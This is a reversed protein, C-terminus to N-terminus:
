PAKHKPKYPPAEPTIRAGTSGAAAGITIAKLWQDITAGDRGQSRWIENAAEELPIPLLKKSAYEGYSYKDKAGLNKARYSLPDNSFPLPRGVADSQSAVDLAVGAFPSLKGRAYEYARTAAEAGRTGQIKELKSREGWFDHAINQLFRVSSISPGILGVNHHAIKFSLWDGAKPNTFNIKDDSGTASLLAQNLALAGMYTGAITLKQRVDRVASHVAEPSENKRNLLVKADKIPDGYLFAWRSAELKPAFFATNMWNPLKSAKTIGTAKNLNDALLKAGEPTKLSEPMANWEQNFRFQRFLKMGDFGRNGMLGIDKFIKVAGANQYDDQYKFPDNALGARKATIFNPDRVLDQMMREHYAGKDTVGMLKFSRGLDKFHQATAKPLFYQNGSHTVTWVTGHGFTALNFFASPISRFFKEYGPYKSEAVWQKAANVLRRREAMKAYMENTLVRAGKPSALGNFVDEKTLGLDTALGARIENPDTKGKDLYGDKALHWLAKAEEPTWASGPKRAKVTSEAKAVTDKTPTGGADVSKLLKDKAAAAADTSGKVGQAIGTAETEQKPTMEKGTTERVARRLGSVTGTDIETEGQHAVFVKHGETSWPKIKAVFDREAKDAAKYEPSEIGHADEAANTAKALEELQARAAMVADASVKKTPDANFDEVAKDVDFGKKLLERGRAVAEEKNIGEGREADIGRAETVRHAIGTAASAPPEKPTKAPPPAPPPEIAGRLDSEAKGLEEDTHGPHLSQYRKIALSVAEAVSRGASLVARAIRLASVYAATHLDSSGRQSKPDMKSKGDGSYKKIEADLRSIASDLKGPKEGEATLEGRRVKGVANSIEAPNAEDLPKGNYTKIGAADLEARKEARSMQSVPKMGLDANNKAQEASRPAVEQVGAQGTNARPTEEGQVSPEVRQRESGAEGTGEPPRQLVSEPSPKSLARQTEEPKPIQGDPHEAMWSMFEKASARDMGGPSRADGVQKIKTGDENLEADWNWDGILEQVKQRGLRKIIQPLNELPKPPPLGAKERAARTAEAQDYKRQGEADAAAEEPTTGTLNKPAEAAVEGPPMGGNRNKIAESAKWAAQYEPSDVADGGGNKLLSSMRKQLMDYQAKDQAAAEPTQEVVPPRGQAAVEERAPVAPEAPTPQPENSLQKKLLDRGEPSQRLREEETLRVDIARSRESNEIDRRQAETREAAAVDLPQEQEPVEVRTPEGGPGVMAQAARRARLEEVTVGAQGAAAQEALVDGRANEQAVLEAPPIRGASEVNDGTLPQNAAREAEAQVQGAVESPKTRRADAAGELVQLFRDTGLNARYNLIRARTADDNGSLHDILSQIRQEKQSETRAEDQFVEASGEASKPNVREPTVTGFTEELQAQREERTPAAPPAETAAAGGAAPAALHSDLLAQEDPTLPAEPTAKPVPEGGRPGGRIGKAAGVAGHAAAVAMGANLAVSAVADAKEAKTAKPDALVRRAEKVADVAGVTGQAAFGGLSGAEAAKAVTGLVTGAGARGLAGAGGTAAMLAANEPTTLGSTFKNAANIIGAGMGEGEAKPITFLGGKTGAAESGIMPTSEKIETNGRQPSMMMRLRELPGANAWAQKLDPPAAPPPTDSKAAAVDQRTPQRPVQAAPGAQAPAIQKNLEDLMGQQFKINSDNAPDGGAQKVITAREAIQAKYIDRMMTKRAVDYGQKARAAASALNRNELVRSPLKNNLVDVTDAARKYEETDAADPNNDMFSQAEKMRTVMEAHTTNAAQSKQVADDVIEKMPALAERHQATVMRKNAAHATRAVNYDPSAMLDAIKGAPATSGDAKKYYLNEDTEDVGPVIPYDKFQRQGYKDRKMLVPQGTKPHQADEWTSEHFLPRGTGEELVPVLRKSVPDTYYQQGRGKYQAEAQSNFTDTDLKQARIKAVAQQRDGRVQDAYDANGRAIAAQDYRRGGVKSLQKIDNSFIFPNDQRQKDEFDNQARQVSQQARVGRDDALRGPQPRDWTGAQQPLLGGTTGTEARPSRPTGAQEQADGEEEDDPTPPTYSPAARQPSRILNTPM